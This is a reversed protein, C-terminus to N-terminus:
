GLSCGVLMMLVRGLDAHTFAVYLTSYIRFEVVYM